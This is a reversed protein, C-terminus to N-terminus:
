SVKSYKLNKELLWFLDKRKPSIPFLLFLLELLNFVGDGSLLNPSVCTFVRSGPLKVEVLELTLTWSLKPSFLEFVLQSLGTLEAVFDLNPGSYHM